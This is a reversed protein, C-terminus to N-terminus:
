RSLIGETFKAVLKDDYHYVVNFYTNGADIVELYLFKSLM